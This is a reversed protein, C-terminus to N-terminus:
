WNKGVGNTGKFRPSPRAAGDSGSPESEDLGPILLFRRSSWDASLQWWTGTLKFRQRSWVYIDPPIRFGMRLERLLTLTISRKQALTPKWRYRNASQTVHPRRGPLFKRVNTCCQNPHPWTDPRNIRRPNGSAM